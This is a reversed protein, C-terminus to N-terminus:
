PNCTLTLTFGVWEGYGYRSGLWIVHWMTGRPGRAETELQSSRLRAGWVECCNTRNCGVRLFAPCGATLSRWFSGLSEPRATRWGLRQTPQCRLQGVGWVSGAQLPYVFGWRSARYPREEEAATTQKMKRLSVAQASGRSRRLM